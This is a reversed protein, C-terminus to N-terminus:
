PSEPLERLLFQLIREGSVRGYAGPDHEVGALLEFAHPVKAEVLNRLMPPHSPLVFDKTGVILILRLREALPAMAETTFEAPMRDNHRGAFAGGWSGAAAFLDPHKLALRVSGAGGMSFGLIVRADRGARTRYERDVLPVLERVIMTEVREGTELNDRYGSRKGGNPFVCIVPPIRKSRILEAVVGAFAAADSNEDGGSGHLFYVAPYRQGSSEYQEPLYVNYGVETGIAESRFSGHVLGPFPARELNNWRTPDPPADNAGALCTMVLSILLLTPRM